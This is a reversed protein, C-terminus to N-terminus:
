EKVPNYSIKSIIVRDADIVFMFLDNKEQFLTLDVPRELQLGGINKIIDLYAGRDSFIFVSRADPDAVYIRNNADTALGSPSKFNKDTVDMLFNGFYDYMYIAPAGPDSVLVRHDSTLDIQVPSTLEGSGSEYYGFAVEGQNAQNFKVIKEAGGDVVFLDGRPSYAASRVWEFQFREDDGPNSYKTSLFTMDKNYRKVRQNNMDAVFINITSRAWIDVPQDFMEEGSGFGGFNALFRGRLDFVQIRHNGSDCIYVKGDGTVDIASPNKLRGPATGTGGFRGLEEVVVGAYAFGGTLLLLLLIKFM